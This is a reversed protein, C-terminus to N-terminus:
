SQRVIELIRSFDTIANPSTNQVMALAAQAQANTLGCRTIFRQILTEELTSSPPAFRARAVNAAEQSVDRWRTRQIAQGLVQGTLIAGRSPAIPFQHAPPQEQIVTVVAAAQRRMQNHPPFQPPLNVVGELNLTRFPGVGHLNTEAM